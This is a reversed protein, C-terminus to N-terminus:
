KSSADGEGGRFGKFADSASIVDDAEEYGEPKNYDYEINFKGTSYLTFTLGWIREGTAALINDRIFLAAGGSDISSGGWGMAKNNIGGNVEFEFLSSAMKKYIQCKCFGKDWPRGQIFDLVARGLEEYADEVTDM